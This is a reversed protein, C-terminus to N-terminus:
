AGAGDDVVQVRAGRHDVHAHGVGAEEVTERRNHDVLARQREVGAEACQREVVGHVEQQQARRALQAVPDFVGGIRM